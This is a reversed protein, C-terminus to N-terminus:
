LAPILPSTGSVPQISCYHSVELLMGEVAGLTLIEPDTPELYTAQVLEFVQSYLDLYEYITHEDNQAITLITWSSIFIISFLIVFRYKM